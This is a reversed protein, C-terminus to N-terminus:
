WLRGSAIYAKRVSSFLRTRVESMIFIDSFLIDRTRLLMFAHACRLSINTPSTIEPTLNLFSCTTLEQKDGAM